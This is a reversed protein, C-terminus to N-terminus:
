QYRLWPYPRILPASLDHLFHAILSVISIATTPAVPATPSAIISIRSCLSNGTPLRYANAESRETPLVTRKLPLDIETESRASNSKEFVAMASNEAPPPTESSCAGRATAAPHTTISLVDCKRRSGVIGRTTGSTFESAIAPYRDVPMIALGLQEVM